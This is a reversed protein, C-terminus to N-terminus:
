RRSPWFFADVLVPPEAAALPDAKGICFVDIGQGDRRVRLRLFHKYGPHDLATFAQTNEFGLLTLHALYAGFAFSALVASSVVVALVAALRVGLSFAGVGLLLFALWPGSLAILSWACSLVGVGLRSRRRVGGILALITVVVVFALGTASLALAREGFHLATAVPGLLVVFLAHPLVGSRGLGVKIPVAWLLRRSQRPGPWEVDREFHDRGAVPAPHLFAGGGGAVVYSTPGSQWREYHHIDGSVVLAGEAGERMGLTELMGLGSFSPKGFHYPPDPLLIVRSSGPHRLRWSDFYQRQRYDVHRLQRDVAYLHLGPALPLAFHSASQAPRYGILDLTSPKDIHEGRMFRRAFETYRSLGGRQLTAYMSASRPPPAADFPRRRFLRAFGDLGDYWDHNGPIGLLVRAKGDDCRELVRNFPSVVRDHIEEATAVPYATDGGFFLIDGRPCRIEASGGGAVRGSPRPLPLLYEAFILRAVAESVDADDGTDAVYDIWVDRGLQETLSLAQANGSAEHARHSLLRGVYRCLEHPDDPTMWDRSDVDETAVASAVFHRLHGWFSSAGFWRVGRPASRGRLFAARPVDGDAWALRLPAVTTSERVESDSPEVSTGAPHAPSM